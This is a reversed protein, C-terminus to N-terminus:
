GILLGAGWISALVILPEIAAQQFPEGEAINGILITLCYAPGLLVL